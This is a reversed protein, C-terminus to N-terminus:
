DVYSDGWLDWALALPHGCALAAILLDFTEKIKTWQATDLKKVGVDDVPFGFLRMHELKFGYECKWGRGEMLGDKAQGFVRKNYMKFFEKM